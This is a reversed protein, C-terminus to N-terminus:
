GDSCTTCQPTQARERAISHEGAAPLIELNGPVTPGIRIEIDGACVRSAGNSLAGTCTRTFETCLTRVPRGSYRELKVLADFVAPNVHGHQNDFGVSLIVARPSVAELFAQMSARKMGAFQSIGPYGTPWAGHHPFKLVDAKLHEPKTRHLMCSIGTLQVDGTLMVAHVEDGPCAMGVRLVGSVENTSTGLLSMQESHNPHLVQLIVSDPVLNAFRSDYNLSTNFNSGWAMASARTNKSLLRLLSLYRKCRDLRDPNYFYAAFRGGFSAVLHELGAVHDDDSHSAFIVAEDVAESELVGLVKEGDYADVIFARRTDPLLVVIADGEGVDLVKIRLTPPKVTM